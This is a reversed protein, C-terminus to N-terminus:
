TIYYVFIIIIISVGFWLIDLLLFILGCTLMGVVVTSQIQYLKTINLGHYLCFLPFYYLQNIAFALAFVVLLCNVALGLSRVRKGHQIHLCKTLKTVELLVDCTDRLVM